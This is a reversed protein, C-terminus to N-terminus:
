FKKLIAFILLFFLFLKQINVLIKKPFLLEPFSEFISSGSRKSSYNQSHTCLIVQAELLKTANKKDSAKTPM